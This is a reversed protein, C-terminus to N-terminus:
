SATFPSRLHIQHCSIRRFSVSIAGALKLKGLREYAVFENMVTKAAIVSAVNECDEYPIGLVYALPIFLKSFLVEFSLDDFGVLVGFWHFAGNLFAVFSVFAVINAIIGFILQIGAIAGNAAADLVSSDQRFACIVFSHFIFPTLTELLLSM